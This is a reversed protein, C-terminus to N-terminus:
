DDVSKVKFLRGDSFVETELILDRYVAKLKYVTRDDEGDAKANIIKASPFYRQVASTVAQPLASVPVEDGAHVVAVFAMLCLLVPFMRKKM